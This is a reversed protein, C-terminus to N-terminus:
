NQREARIVEYDENFVIVASGDPEGDPEGNFYIGETGYLGEGYDLFNDTPDVLASFYTDGIQKGIIHFM